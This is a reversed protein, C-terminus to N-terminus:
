KLSVLVQWGLTGAFEVQVNLTVKLGSVAPVKVAVKFIPSGSGLPGCFIVTVPVPTAAAPTALYAPDPDRAASGLKTNAPIRWEISTSNFSKLCSIACTSGSWPWIPM